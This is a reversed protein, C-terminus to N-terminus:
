HIPIKLQMYYVKTIIRNEFAKEVHMRGLEHSYTWGSEEPTKDHVFAVKLVDIEDSFMKEIFNFKHPEEPTLKLDIATEEAILQFEKWIKTIESKIQLASKNKFSTYGFIDIYVFFADGVTCHLNAGGMNEYLHKFYYYNARFVSCEDETWKEDPKKGVLKQLKLYYGLKSFEIYNIKTCHYFALFEYYIKVNKEASREPLIRIVQAPVSAAGFFKLVSVRKNGEEVYFRNMYEYVKVPERIGENLHAKCLDKWKTAFETSEDMIPMFNSAFSNTRGATRTGVIFDAPIEVIGLMNGSNMKENPLIDELAPLFPSKNGVSLHRKAKKGRKLAERYFKNEM